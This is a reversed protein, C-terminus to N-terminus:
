DRFYAAVYDEFPTDDRAELARQEDLSAQAEAAFRAETEADLPRALFHDRHALSQNLAFQFFSQERGELKEMVRGSPTLGPELIKEKQRALALSYLDDGHTRDFLAAIPVLQEVIELAWEHISLRTGNRCLCAATNRGNYVVQRMNQKAAHLDTADMPPSECLLCWTAFLDLFRMENVNIGVPEFPNLDLARIEIYEVGRRSLAQTPREGPEATRKPRISSYYENEIQLISTNLQQWVGDRMVGIHEYAPEPTRIAHTLSRVYEHVSNLSVHLSSQANNQYGLDSMRLSTAFPRFLTHDFSELLRHERGALFSACLAPSAGFLYVLLWSYRQFNRLLDFYRRSIFDQLPEDSREQERHLTWFTEPFSFNYHIGAIAQMRRGYRHWLGVRYVHKMRGVNSTGYEAIPVDTDDGIRCPMSNVWLLEDGLHRYVYRHWQDLFELPQHIDTFAPTIFELLAESYDTTLWPHTLTSGLARPHPTRAIHGDPTVRLSEKEIGRRIGALTAAADSDLLARIRSALLESM